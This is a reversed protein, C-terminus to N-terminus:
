YYFMFLFKTQKANVGLGVEKSADFPAKRIANINEALLNDDDAHILLHTDWVM